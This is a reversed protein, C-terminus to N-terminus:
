IEDIPLKDGVYLITADRIEGDIEKANISLKIPKRDWEAIQLMEKYKSAELFINQVVANVRQGNATNRVTVKFCDLDTSDVKEIKYMGDLRIESSRRRANTSLQKSLEQDLKINDFEAESAKSFSKIIDAKALDSYNKHNMLESSKSIVNSLLETRKTENETMLQMTKLQEKTIQDRSEDARKDKLNSMFGKFMSVSGWILATGLVTIMAEQGTMNSFGSEIFKNFIVELISSGKDVKVQIELEDREEKTLRKADPSGYKSLAYAKNIQSQIDVFCKMVSPTLSQDFKDGILRFTLVPWNKFVINGDIKEGNLCKELYKFADDESSIIIDNKNL